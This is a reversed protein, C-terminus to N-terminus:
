SRRLTALVQAVRANENAHAALAKSLLTVWHDLPHTATKLAIGRVIKKHQAVIGHMERKVLFVDPELHLEFCVIRTGESQLKTREGM